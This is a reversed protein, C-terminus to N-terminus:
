LTAAVRTHAHTPPAPPPRVRVKAAGESLVKASSGPGACMKFCVECTCSVAVASLNKARADLLLFLCNLDLSVSQYPAEIEESVKNYVETDKKETRFKYVKRKIIDDPEHDKMEFQDILKWERTVKKHGAGTVPSQAKDDSDSM